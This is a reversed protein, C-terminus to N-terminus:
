GTNGEVVAIEEETLGYLGYVVQDIEREVAEAAPGAVMGLRRIVQWELQSKATTFPTTALNADRRV